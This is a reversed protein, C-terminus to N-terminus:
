RRLDSRIEAARGIRAFTVLLVAPVLLPALVLLPPLWPATVGGRATVVTLLWLSGALAAFFASFAVSAGRNLPTRRRIVAVTAYVTPLAAILLLMGFATARDTWEDPQGSLGWHWPLRAPLDPALAVFSVAMAITVAIPVMLAWAFVRDPVFGFPEDEADPEILHLRVAVAGFNVDWGVGFVRPVWVRPDRPNWWRSAVREPTPVRVDYPVGLISGAGRDGGAAGGPATEVGSEAAFSAAPGLEAIVAEADSRSSSEGLREAAHARLEDVTDAVVRPDVGHMAARVADLYEEVLRAAESSIAGTRDSM